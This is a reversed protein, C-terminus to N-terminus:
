SINKAPKTDSLLDAKRIPMIKRAYIYIAMATLLINSIGLLGMTYIKQSLNRGLLDSSNGVYFIILVVFLTTLFANQKQFLYILIFLIIPLSMLFHETDTKFISPMLAILVFWEMIFSSSNAKEDNKNHMRNLYTFLVYFVLLFLIVLYQFNGSISSSVYYRILAEITNPTPFSDAHTLMAASWQKHLEIDKSLGLILAPLM